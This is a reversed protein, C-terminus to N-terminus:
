GVQAGGVVGGHGALGGEQGGGQGLALAVAGVPAGEVEPHALVGHPRDDVPDGQVAQGAGVAPGEHHEHVVHARRHAQGREHPHAGHEHEGVVGNPHALVAGGVLGHLVQGGQAGDGAQGHHPGSVGVLRHCGPPPDQLVGPLGDGQHQRALVQGHDGGGGLGALAHAPAGVDQGLRDGEGAGHRGGGDDEDGGAALHGHGQLCAVAELLGAGGGAHDGGGAQLPEAGLVGVVLVLDQRRLGHGDRHLGTNGLAPPLDHPVRPVNDGQVM